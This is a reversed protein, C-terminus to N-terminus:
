NIDHHKEKWCSNFAASKNKNDGTFSPVKIKCKIALPEGARLLSNAQRSKSDLHCFRKSDQNVRRHLLTRKRDAVLDTWKFVDPSEVQYRYM